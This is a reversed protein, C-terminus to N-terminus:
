GPGFPSGTNTPQPEVLQVKDGPNLSGAVIVYDGQVDGSVVNVREVAGLGNVRNVFEGQDDLQVADLPVALAGEQVDTVINVNATMGLLVRPDTRTANIRVTYRVLGQVTEGVPNIWDVAGSLSLDPLSDFTITVADGVQISTVDAEDVSAEVHIQARNAIVVAAQSQSVTDGPLYHVALVEGDFPARLTLTDLTARAIQVRIEAAQIDDPDAGNQLTDLTDQADALTAEAVLVAAQRATLEQADPGAKAAALNALADALDEQANDVADQGSTLGQQYNIEAIQYANLAADYAEKADELSMRRGASNVFVTTCNPCQEQATKADNYWNTKTELDDQASQLATTLNGIKTKELDQQATLLTQRTEAVQDEYYSLDYQTLDDLEDQATELAAQADSVAKVANAIDLATPHLLDDLANQASILDAQAQIVSQPATAPDLTM